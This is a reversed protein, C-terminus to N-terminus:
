AAEDKGKKKDEEERKPKKVNRQALYTQAGVGALTAVFAICLLLLPSAPDEGMRQEGSGADDGLVFHDATLHVTWAIGCGGLLATTVRLLQKRAVYALVAGVTGAVGVTALYPFPVGFAMWTAESSVVSELPLTDYVFHAAAGFSAAGVLFIGTKLLCLAAVAATLGTGLSVIVRVLCDIPALSTVMFVAGTSLVGAVIGAMPRVIHEGVVLLAVSAAGLSGLGLVVGGESTAINSLEVVASDLGTCNMM